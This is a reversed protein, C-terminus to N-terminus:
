KEENDSQFVMQETVDIESGVFDGEQDFYRKNETVVTHQSKGLRSEKIYLYTLAFLILGSVVTLGDEWGKSFGIYPLLILFISLIFLARNKSM